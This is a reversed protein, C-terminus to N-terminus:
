DLEIPSDILELQSHASVKSILDFSSKQTQGRRRSSPYLPHWQWDARRKTYCECQPDDIVILESDIAGNAWFHEDTMLVIGKSAVYL